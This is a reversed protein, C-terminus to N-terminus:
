ARAGWTDTGHGSNVVTMGLLGFVPAEHLLIVPVGLTAAVDSAAGMQRRRDEARLGDAYRNRFDLGASM